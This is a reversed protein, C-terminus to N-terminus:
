FPIGFPASILRCDGDNSVPRAGSRCETFDSASILHCDNDDGVPRIGNGRQSGYEAALDGVTYISGKEM